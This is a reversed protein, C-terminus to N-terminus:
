KASNKLYENMNKISKEFDGPWKRVIGDNKANVLTRYPTNGNNDKILANCLPSKVLTAICNSFGSYCALHLPTQGLKNCINVDAGNECLWVCPAPNNHDTDQHVSMHLATNGDNDQENIDYHKAMWPLTSNNGYCIIMNHITPKDKYYKEVMINKSFLWDLVKEHNKKHNWELCADFANLNKSNVIAPDCGKNYLWDLLPVNVAHKCCNYILTEKWANKVNIDIKNDTIIQEIEAAVTRNLKVKKFLLKIADKDDM